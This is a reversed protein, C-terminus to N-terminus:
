SIIDALFPNRIPLIPERPKSITTNEIIRVDSAQDYSPVHMENSEGATSHEMKPYRNWSTKRKRNNGRGKGSLNKDQETISTM